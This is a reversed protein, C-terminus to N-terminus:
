ISEFRLDSVCRTAFHLALGREDARAALCDGISVGLAIEIVLAIGRLYFHLSSVIRAMRNGFFDRELEDFLFVLLDLLVLLVVAVLILVIIVDQM